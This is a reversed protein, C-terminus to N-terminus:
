SSGRRVPGPRGRRERELLDARVDSRLEARTDDLLELCQMALLGLCERDFFLEGAHGLPVGGRDAAASGRSRGSRGPARGARSGHPRDGDVADGAARGRRRAVAVGRRIEHPVDALRRPDPEGPLNASTAVVAGVTSVIEATVSPLQPVRSASRRRRARREALRVSAGPEPVVLTYPGPLLVRAAAAAAGALEPLSELLGDLGAFIVATPQIADRGKLRYLDAAATESGARARSATSPTRRSCSSSGARPARAVATDIESLGGPRRRGPRDRGPRPHRRVDVFGLRELLAATAGAQGEGSRSCSRGAPASCPSPAGRSRRWRGEATSRRTRSGTAFRPSSGPSSRRTWMPRIRSSSTGRARRALGRLPRPAGLEVALGTRERERCRARAGRESSDIGTVVAGPHEDAIALAIAGSGTGVDLM